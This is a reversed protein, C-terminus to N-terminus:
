HVAILKMREKVEKCEGLILLEIKMNEM